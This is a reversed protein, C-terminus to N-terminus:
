DCFSFPQCIGVQILVAQLRVAAENVGYCLFSHAYLSYNSGYLSMDFRFDQPVTQTHNPIFTIQTSAGGLDLAGVSNVILDPVVADSPPHQNSFFLIDCDINKRSFGFFPQITKRVLWIVAVSHFDPPNWVLGDFHTIACLWRHHPIICHPGTLVWMFIYISMLRCGDGKKVCDGGGGWGVCVCVCLWVCVCACLLMCLSDWACACVCMSDCVCLAVCVCVYVCLSLCVCVCVCVCQCVYVTIVCMCVCHLSLSLSVVSFAGTIYNSTIWAFAGEESGTLIRVQKKADTFKFPYNSITNRVSELVAESANPNEKRSSVSM